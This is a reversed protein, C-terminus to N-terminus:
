AYALSPASGQYTLSPNLLPFVVCAMIVLSVNLRIPMLRLLIICNATNNTKEKVKSIYIHFSVLLIKQPPPLPGQKGMPDNRNIGGVGPTKLM